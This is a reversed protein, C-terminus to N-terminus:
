VTRYTVNVVISSDSNVQSCVNTPNSTNTNVNGIQVFSGGAYTAQIGYHNENEDAKQITAFGTIRSADGGYESASQYPLSVRLQQGSPSSTSAVRVRGHVNIWNGIKHYALKNHSTNLTITGSTNCTITVTHVGEEYDDLANAAATDTGFLLGHQNVSVRQGNNIGFAITDAVPRFLTAGVNPLSTQGSFQLHSSVMNISGSNVIGGKITATGNVDLATTPNNTQIGVNKGTEVCFAEGDKTDITVRATGSSNSKIRHQFGYTGWDTTAGNWKESGVTLYTNDQNNGYNVCKVLVGAFTSSGAARLSLQKQANTTGIGVTTATLTTVVGANVTLSTVIGTKIRTRGTSDVRFRETNNADSTHITLLNDSGSGTTISNIGSISKPNVVTM